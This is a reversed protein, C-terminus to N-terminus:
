GLGTGVDEPGDDDYPGSDRSTHAYIQMSDEQVSYRNDHLFTNPRQLIHVLGPVTAAPRLNHEGNDLHKNSQPNFSPHALSKQM